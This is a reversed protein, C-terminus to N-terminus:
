ATILSEEDGLLQAKVVKGHANKPLSNCLRVEKPCMYPPLNQRCYIFIDERSLSSGSRIVVFAVIAEGRIPDPMGVVSAEVVDTLRLIAEEVRQSSVRHGYSKIFDSKRDVIYIFGENDVEALDGTRLAGDV